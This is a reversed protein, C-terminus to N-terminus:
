QGALEQGASVAPVDPREWPAPIPFYSNLFGLVATLRTEISIEPASGDNLCFFDQSRERLLKKLQRLSSKLTTEVYTVRANPQVVARGTMLAYYHYLSNTVSIDTASRFPSAATRAFDDAFETEM